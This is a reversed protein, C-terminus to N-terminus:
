PNGAIKDRSAAMFDISSFSPFVTYLVCKESEPNFTFADSCSTMTATEQDLLLFYGPYILPEPPPQRALNFAVSELDTEAPIRRNSDPGGCKRISKHSEVFLSNIYPPKYVSILNRTITTASRGVFVSM